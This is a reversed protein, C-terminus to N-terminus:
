LLAAPVDVGAGRAVFVGRGPFTRTNAEDVGAREPDSVTRVPTDAPQASGQQSTPMCIACEVAPPTDGRSPSLAVALPLPFVLNMASLSTARRAVKFNQATDCYAGVRGLACLTRRSPRSETKAAAQRASPKKTSEMTHLAMESNNRGDWTRSRTAGGGARDQEGWSSAGVRGRDVYVGHNSLCGGHSSLCGGNM